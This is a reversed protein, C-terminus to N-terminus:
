SKEWLKKFLAFVVFFLFILYILAGGFVPVKSVDLIMNYFLHTFSALFFGFFIKSVKKEFFYFTALFYGWLGSSLAHLFTATFFRLLFLPVFFEFKASWFSFFNEVAAFGLGSTMMYVMGDEPKNFSKSNKVFFYFPLFKAFEEFFPSLFNFLPGLLSLENKLFLFLFCLFFAFVAGWLFIEAIKLKPEKEKEQSLFFVLWILSPLPACFLIILKEEIM